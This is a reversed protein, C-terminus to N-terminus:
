ASFPRCVKGKIQDFRLKLTRKKFPLASISVTKPEGSCLLQQTEEESTYSYEKGKDLFEIIKNLFDGILGDSIAIVTGIALLIGVIVISSIVMFHFFYGKWILLISPIFIIPIFPLTWFSRVLYWFYQKNILKDVSDNEDEPLRQIFWTGGSFVGLSSNLSYILPHLLYKLTLGRSGLLLAIILFLFRICLNIAMILIQFSYAFLRRRRFECQDICKDRFFHNVWDKEFKSPEKAFIEKPVNVEIPSATLEPIESIKSSFETGDHDLINTIFWGEEKSLYASNVKKKNYTSIFAWIKNKGSIRFDLYTMLDTLPVVKRYERRIHYNDVPSVVIVVQPDAVEEKKLFELAKADVCWTIPVNGSSVDLDSIHIEFM